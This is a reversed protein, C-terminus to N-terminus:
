ARLFAQIHVSTQLRWAAGAVLGAVILLVVAVMPSYYFGSLAAL